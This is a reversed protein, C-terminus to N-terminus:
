VVGGLGAVSFSVLCAFPVCVENLCCRFVFTIIMRRLSLALLSLYSLFLDRCGPSTVSTIVSIGESMRYRLLVGMSSEEVERVEDPIEVALEVTVGGEGAVVAVADDDLDPM